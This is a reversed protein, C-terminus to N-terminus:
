ISLRELSRTYTQLYKLIQEKPPVVYWKCFNKWYTSKLYIRKLYIRQNLTSESEIYMKRAYLTTLM